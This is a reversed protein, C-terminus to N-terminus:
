TPGRTCLVQGVAPGLLHQHGGQWGGWLISPPRRAECEQMGAGGLRQQSQRCSSHMRRVTSFVSTFWLACFLEKTGWIKCSLSMKFEWNRDGQCVRVPKGSFLRCLQNGSWLPSASLSFLVCVKNLSKLHWHRLMLSSCALPGIPIRSGPSKMGENQENLNQREAQEAEISRSWDSIGLSLLELQSLLIAALYVSEVAPVRQPSDIPASSKLWPSCPFPVAESVSLCTDDEAHGQAISPGESGWNGQECFPSSTQSQRLDSHPYAPDSTTACHRLFKQCHAVTNECFIKSLWLFHILVSIGPLM